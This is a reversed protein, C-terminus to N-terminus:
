KRIFWLSANLFGCFTMILIHISFQVTTTTTKLFSLIQGDADEQVVGKIREGM